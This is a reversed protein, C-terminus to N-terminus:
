SCIAANTGITLTTTNASDTPYDGCEGDIITITSDNCGKAYYDMTQGNEGYGSTAVVENQKSREENMKEKERDSIERNLYWVAKKLDEIDDWKKGARLIYKLANGLCFNYHRTIEIVELGFPTDTYHKPHDVMDNM